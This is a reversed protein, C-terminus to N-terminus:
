SRDYGLIPMLGVVDLYILDIKYKGPKILYNHPLRRGKSTLCVKYVYDSPYHKETLDIGECMSPLRAVNQSGLHGM